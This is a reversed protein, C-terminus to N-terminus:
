KSEKKAHIGCYLGNTGKGNKHRCQYFLCGGGSEHVEYACFGERYRTGNPNGAWTNYRHARAEEITKPTDFM